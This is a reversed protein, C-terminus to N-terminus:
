RSRNARHSCRLYRKVIFYLETKRLGSSISRELIRTHLCESDVAEVSGGLNVKM